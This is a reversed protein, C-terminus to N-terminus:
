VVEYLLEVRVDGGRAVGGNRGDRKRRQQVNMSKRM